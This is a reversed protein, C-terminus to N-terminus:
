DHIDIVTLFMDPDAAAKEMMTAYQNEFDECNEFHEGNWYERVFAKGDEGIFGYCGLDDRNLIDCVYAGDVRIYGDAFGLHAFMECESWASYSYSENAKNLLSSWFVRGNRNERPIFRWGYREGEDEPDIKLKLMGGYRGGMQWWDWTFTPPSVTDSEDNWYETGKYPAMINNLQELTPCRHTFVFICYHM